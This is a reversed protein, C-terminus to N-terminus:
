KEDWEWGVKNRCIITLGVNLWYNLSAQGRGTHTVTAQTRNEELLTRHTQLTHAGQLTQVLLLLENAAQLKKGASEFHPLPGEPSSECRM